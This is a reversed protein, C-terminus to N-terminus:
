RKLQVLPPFLDFERLSEALITTFSAKLRPETFVNQIDIVDFYRHEQYSPNWLILPCEQKSYISAGMGKHISRVEIYGTDENENMYLCSAVIADSIGKLATVPHIEGIIHVMRTVDDNPDVLNFPGTVNDRVFEYGNISYDIKGIVLVNNYITAAYYKTIDHFIDNMKIPYESTEPVASV